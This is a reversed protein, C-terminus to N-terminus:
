VAAAATQPRGNSRPSLSGSAASRLDAPTPDSLALASSRHTPRFDTAARSVGVNVAPGLSRDLKEIQPRLGQPYTDRSTTAFTSFETALDIGMLRHNSSVIRASHGDWLVPIGVHGRCGPSTAEYAQRLLAFGNAGTPERFAWGHGDRLGDVYGVSVDDGLGNLAIQPVARDALEFVEGVGADKQSALAVAPASARLDFVDGGM